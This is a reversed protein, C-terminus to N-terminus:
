RDGRRRLSTDPHHGHTEEHPGAGDPNVGGPRGGDDVIELEGAEVLVKVGRQDLDHDSVKGEKRPGLHLVKNSRVHVRLPRNTKNRVTAM